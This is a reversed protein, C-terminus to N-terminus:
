IKQKLSRQTIRVGQPFPQERKMQPHIFPHQKVIKSVNEVLKTGTGKLEIFIEKNSPYTQLVQNLTPIKENIFQTAKWKGM